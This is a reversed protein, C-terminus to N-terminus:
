FSNRLNRAHEINKRATELLDDSRPNPERLNKVLFPPKAQLSIDALDLYRQIWAEEETLSDEGRQLAHSIREYDPAKKM